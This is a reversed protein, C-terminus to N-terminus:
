ETVVFDAFAINNNFNKEKLSQDSNVILKIRYNGAETLKSPNPWYLQAGIGGHASLSNLARMDIVEEKYPKNDKLYIVLVKVNSTTYSMDTINEFRAMVWFDDGVRFQSESLDSSPHLATNVLSSKLTVQNVILDPKEDIIKFTKTADNDVENMEKILDNTDIFVKIDYEGVELQKPLIAKIQENRSDPPLSRFTDSIKYVENGTTKNTVLIKYEFQGSEVNSYNALPIIAEISESPQFEYRIMNANPTSLHMQHTRIAINTQSDLPRGNVIPKSKDPSTNNETPINPNGTETTKIQISKVITDFENLIKETKEEPVFSPTKLHATVNTNNLQYSKWSCPPKVCIDSGFLCCDGEDIDKALTTYTFIYYLKDETMELASSGYAPRVIDHERVKVFDNGLINFGKTDLIDFTLNLSTEDNIIDATCEKDDYHIEYNPPTQFTINKIVTKNTQFNTCNFETKIWDSIQENQQDQNDENVKLNINSQSIPEPKTNLALKDYFFFAGILFLGFVLLLITFIISVRKKNSM